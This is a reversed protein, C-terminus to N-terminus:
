FVVREIRSSEGVVPVYMMEFGENKLQSILAENQKRVAEMLKEPSPETGDVYNLYFVIIGKLKV